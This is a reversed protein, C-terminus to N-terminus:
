MFIFWVVTVVIVRWSTLWVLDLLNYIWADNLYNEIRNSNIATCFLAVSFAIFMILRIEM